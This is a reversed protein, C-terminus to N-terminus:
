LQTIFSKKSGVVEIKRSTCVDLKAYAQVLWRDVQGGQSDQGDFPLWSAKASKLGNM